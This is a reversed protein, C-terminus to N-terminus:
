HELFLSIQRILTWFSYILSQKKLTMHAECSKETFWSSSLQCKKFWLINIHFHTLDCLCWCLKKIRILRCEYNLTQVGFLKKKLFFILSKAAVKFAGGFTMSKYFVIFIIMLLWVKLSFEWCNDLFTREKVVENHFKQFLSTLTSM